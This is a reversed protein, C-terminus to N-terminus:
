NATHTHTETNMVTQGPSLKLATVEKVHHHLDLDYTLNMIV